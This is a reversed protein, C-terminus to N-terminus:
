GALATAPDMHFVEWLHGDPDAFSREYTGDQEVPKSAPSGGSELARVALQGV